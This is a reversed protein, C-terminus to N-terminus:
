FNYRLGALASATWIDDIAPDDRTAGDVGVALTARLRETLLRYYSASAGYGAVDGFLPDNTRLWNAYASTAWGANRGLPGSLYAALWYNKDIVGNAAALVTGEAAIFKRRDYGMGLGANLRGIRMSYSAMVGRARFTSSRVSGLAGSLCNNGELTAVCGTLEGTVPDRVAEFDDPLQDILRNLQGGFGGINDYVSISLQSRDDPAYALTGGYTTSGYRRGVHASLSTRRSPRWMVAVDWTLGSVDYSLVRPVSKDTVYRGHSGIVPNGDADRVADRSSIEVDEYGLAGVVQVTRGVPVTVMARAQMDRARQDLNSIDEQYFSGAVALGVPLVAGPAVGAEADAVQTVSKDFVDVAVSGPAAVYANSHDVKTFGARYNANINVDGARTAVSPGGYVSYIKTKSKTSVNGGPLASGGNDVTAQTALGGAEVTLGPTVTAYGRAIGSIADGDAAKRGWGFQHEYRVSVSAGNNRGAVAADVGAVARTYTLVDNGPSLQADLIQDIEIYPTVELRKIGKGGRKRSKAPKYPPPEATSQDEAGASDYGIAQAHVTAPLAAVALGALLAVGAVARELAPRNRLQRM